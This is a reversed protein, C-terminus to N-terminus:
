LSIWDSQNEPEIVTAISYHKNFFHFAGEPLPNLANPNIYIVSRRSSFMITGNIFRKEIYALASLEKPLKEFGDSPEFMKNALFCNFNTGFGSFPIYDFVALCFPKSNSNNFLMQKQKNNDGKCKLKIIRYAQHAHNLEYSGNQNFNQGDNESVNLTTVEAYFECPSYIEFDPTAENQSTPIPKIEYSYKKLLFFFAMENVASLHQNNCYSEIRRKFNKQDKKSLPYANYLEILKNIYPELVSFNCHDAWEIERDSQKIDRQWKDGFIPM